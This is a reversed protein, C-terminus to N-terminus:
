VGLARLAQLISDFSAQDVGASNGAYSGLQNRAVGYKADQYGRALQDYGISYNRQNEGQMRGYAGSYLQGQSAYSNTTGRQSRKYSEELLKAQSYPNSQDSGLGYSNEIRANQYTADTDALATNRASTVKYAEFMPDVPPAQAIYPNTPAPTAGYVPAGGLGSAPPTGFGGTSSGATGKRKRKAM